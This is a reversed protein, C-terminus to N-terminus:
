VCNKGSMCRVKVEEFSCLMNWDWHVLNGATPFAAFYFATGDDRGPFSSFMFKLAELCSKVISIDEIIENTIGTVELPFLAVRTSKICRKTSCFCHPCGIVWVVVGLVRSNEPSSRAYGLSSNQMSCQFICSLSAVEFLVTQKYVLPLVPYIM